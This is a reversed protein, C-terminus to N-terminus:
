GSRLHGRCTGGNVDSSTSDPCTTHGWVVQVLSAGTLDAGTLDAGTLDAGDLKAGRLDADRLSAGALRAGRLDATSAAPPPNAAWAYALIGAAAVVAAVLFRRLCREFAAKLAEHNAMDEVVEIRRDLAEIGARLRPAPDPKALEAVLQARRIILEEPSEAGQLFKPRKRFFAVVAGLEPVPREWNEALDSILVQVPLLVRVASWIAFGVAALGLLAGAAAVSLRASGADLRGISSLQSGAILAAGVAASCAILWKATDRIRQNAAALASQQPEPATM